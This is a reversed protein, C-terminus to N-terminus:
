EPLNICRGLSDKIAQLDQCGTLLMAGKLENYIKQAYLKVAEDGGGIAYQAFPRGILVADAGLALLKFVDVGSRVGGDVFVQCRGSVAQAIDKLVSATAPTHDLVRGGHNSVVIASAGASVALHAEEVTMIGKIIFPVKLHDRIAKLEDLSKPDVRQGHMKLTDLGASDIDVGIALPNATMALDIRSLLEETNWPKIFPIGQVSEEKLVKLNDEIFSKFASDGVMPLIGAQSSGKVVARIYDEETVQNGMNFNVGTVPAPMVPMSLKQGFLEISLDPERVEHITKMNLTIGKLANYNNMFSSGTGKGGMGPVEGRCAVGNCEPCMRCKPMMLERAKKAAEVLTM